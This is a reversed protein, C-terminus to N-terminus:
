YEFLVDDVAHTETETPLTDTWDFREFFNVRSETNVQPNVKEGKEKLKHLKTLIQTEIPSHDETRGPNEPTLFWFLSKQQEPKNARLLKNLYTTFNPDGERIVNLIATTLPKVCKSQDLTVLSLELLKTNRKISYLSETTDTVKVVSKTDIIPSM